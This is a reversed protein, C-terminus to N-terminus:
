GLWFGTIDSGTPRHGPGFIAETPRCAVISHDFEAGVRRKETLCDFDSEFIPHTGM